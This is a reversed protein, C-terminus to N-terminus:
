LQAELWRATKECGMAHLRALCAALRATNEVEPQREHIPVYREVANLTTFYDELKELRFGESFGHHVIREQPVYPVEIQRDQDDRGHQFLTGDHRQMVGPIVQM